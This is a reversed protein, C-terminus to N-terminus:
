ADEYEMNMMFDTRAPVQNSAITSGNAYVPQFMCFLGRTTPNTATDRFNVDKVIYPMLDISFNCNLKFDNNSLNGQLPLSGTAGTGGYQAYGLKFMKTKLVKYRDKNEPTYLDFLINQMSISSDGFQMFDNNARVTPITQPEEKDYFLWMKIQVPAPTLNTTANYPMPYIVGSFKLKKIKIKNGVRQGQGTGQPITLFSTAPSVPFIQSDFGPSTSPVIDWSQTFDTFNKNEVNRAIERKVMKKVSTKRAYSKRKYTRKKAYAKRKYTKRRFAM